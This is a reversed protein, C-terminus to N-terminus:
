LQFGLQGSFGTMTIDVNSYISPKEMLFTSLFLWNKTKKLNKKSCNQIPASQHIEKVTYIAFHCFDPFYIFFIHQITLLPNLGISSFEDTLFANWVSPRVTSTVILVFFRGGKIEFTVEWRDDCSYWKLSFM